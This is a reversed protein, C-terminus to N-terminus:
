DAYSFEVRRMRARCEASRCAQAQAERGAVQRRIQKLPVGQARLQKAVANIRQEAIALNYSLSGLDDTYGLLTVFLKPNAKLREAHRQITQLGTGDIQAAGSQFFVNKEEDVTAMVQADSPQAELLAPKASVPVPTQAPPSVNPASGCGAILVSCALAKMLRFLNM